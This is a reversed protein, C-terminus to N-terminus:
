LTPRVVVVPVSTPAQTPAPTPQPALAEQTQLDSLHAEAASPASTNGSLVPLLLYRGALGLIVLLVVLGVLWLLAGQWLPRTPQAPSAPESDDVRPRSPPRFAM